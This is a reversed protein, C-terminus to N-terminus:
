RSHCTVTADPVGAMHTQVLLCALSPAQHTWKIGPPVWYYQPPRDVRPLEISNETPRSPHDSWQLHRQLEESRM